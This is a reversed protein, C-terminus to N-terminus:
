IAYLELYNCTECRLGRVVKAAARDVQINDGKLGLLSAQEPEGDLWALKMFYHESRDAAYGKVMNGSCKPCNYRSDSM